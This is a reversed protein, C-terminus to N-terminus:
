SVKLDNLLVDLTKKIGSEELMLYYNRFADGFGNGRFAQKKVRLSELLYGKFQYFIFCVFQFFLKQDRERLSLYYPCIIDKLYHMLFSEIFFLKPMPTIVWFLRNEKKFFNLSDAKFLVFRMKFTARLRRPQYRRLFSTIDLHVSHFDSENKLLTSSCKLCLFPNKSDKSFIEFAPFQCFFCKKGRSLAEKSFFGCTGELRSGESILLSKNSASCKTQPKCYVCYKQDMGKVQLSAILVGCNKCQNKTQLCARCIEKEQPIFVFFSEKQISVGCFYCIKPAKIENIKSVQKSYVQSYKEKIAKLNIKDLKTVDYNKVIKGQNNKEEKQKSDKKNKKFSSIKEWNGWKKIKKKSKM